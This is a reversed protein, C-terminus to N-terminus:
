EFLNKAGIVHDINDQIESVLTHIEFLHRGIEYVIPIIFLTSVFQGNGVQISRTNSIFKPIHHLHINRLYFSKFM